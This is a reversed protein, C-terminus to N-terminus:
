INGTRSLDRSPAAGSWLSSRTPGCPGSAAAAAAGGCAARGGGADSGRGAMARSRRIAPRGM